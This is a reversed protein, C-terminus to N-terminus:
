ITTDKGILEEFEKIPMPKGYYYGQMKDCSIRKLFDVQEQTSVGEAVTQINLQKCMKVITEILIKGREQNAEESLFEKDIKLVDIDFNKLMNFSSYGSGFDDMAVRIGKEHLKTIISQVLEKDEIFVNETFEIELLEHPIAYSDIISIIKDVYADEHLNLPSQNIAIHYRKGEQLWKKQQKCVQELMYKDLKIIIGFREFIDIFSNPYIVIGDDTYWRVLAEGGIVKEERDVKPQIYLKFENNQFANEAKEILKAKLKEGQIKKDLELQLIAKKERQKINRIYIILSIATIILILVFLMTLIIIKAFTANLTEQLVVSFVYLGTNGIPTYTAIKKINDEYFAIQLIGSKHQNLKEKLIEKDEPKSFKTNFINSIKRNVGPHNSRIIITGTSDIVDFYGSGDLFTEDVIAQLEKNEIDIQNNKSYELIRSAQLQGIETLFLRIQNNQNMILITIYIYAVFILFLFVFIISFYFEKKNEKM